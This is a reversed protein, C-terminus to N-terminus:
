RGWLSWAALALFGIFLAVVYDQALGTQLRRLSSGVVLAAYGVVNMLGDVVYRDIWGILRALSRLVYRWGLVYLKDIAGSGYDSGDFGAIISADRM